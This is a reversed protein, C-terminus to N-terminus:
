KLNYKKKAEFVIREAVPVMPKVPVGSGALSAETWNCGNKDQDRLRMVHTFNYGGSDEVKGLENNLIKVLEKETILIRGM